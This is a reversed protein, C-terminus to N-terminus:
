FNGILSLLFYFRLCFVIKMFVIFLFFVWKMCKVLSDFICIEFHFPISMIIVCGSGVLWSQVRWLVGIGINVFYCYCMWMYYLLLYGRAIGFRHVFSITCMYYVFYLLDSFSFFISDRYLETQKQLQIYNLKRAIIKKKGVFDSSSITYCSLLPFVYFTYPVLNYLCSFLFKLSSFFLLNRVNYPPHTFSSSM